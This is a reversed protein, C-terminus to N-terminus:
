FKFELGLNLTFAIDNSINPIKDELCGTNNLVAIRLAEAQDKNTPLGQIDKYHSGPFFASWIVFFKLSETLYFDTFTNVEFGLYTSAPVDIDTRTAIDFRRSPHQQWYALINPFVKFKRSRNLPEWKLSSGVFIINTFGSISPAFKNLPANAM